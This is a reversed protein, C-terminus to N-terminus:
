IVPFYKKMVQADKLVPLVMGILIFDMIVHRVLQVIKVIMVVLYANFVFEKMRIGDMKVFVVIKIMLLYHIKVLLVIISLVFSLVHVKLNKKLSLM